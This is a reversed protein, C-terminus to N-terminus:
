YFSSSFKNTIVMSEWEIARLSASDMNIMEFSTLLVDFKIRAQKSSSANKLAKKKKQGKKEEKSYFFECQRAIARAPASGAYM